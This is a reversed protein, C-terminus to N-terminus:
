GKMKNPCNKMERCPVKYGCAYLLFPCFKGQDQKVICFEDAIKGNACKIPCYNCNTQGNKECMRPVFDFTADLQEPYYDRKEITNWVQEYLERVIVNFTRKPSSDGGEVKELFCARFFPNNNWVDGPLELVYLQSQLKKMQSPIIESFLERFHVCKLLDRVFCTLRKSKLREKRFGKPVGGGAFFCEVKRYKKVLCRDYILQYELQGKKWQGIDSYGLLWLGYLLFETERGSPALALCKQIYASFSKETFHALIKLTCFIGVFDNPFFRSSVKIWKENKLHKDDKYQARDDMPRVAKFCDDNCDFYPGPNLLLYYPSHTNFDFVLQSFIFDLKSFVLKYSIQRNTIYGLFHTLLKQEASMSTDAYNPVDYNDNDREAQRPRWWRAEDLFRIFNLVDLRGQEMKEVEASM